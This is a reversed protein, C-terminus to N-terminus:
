EMESESIRSINMAAMKMCHRLSDLLLEVRKTMSMARLHPLGQM